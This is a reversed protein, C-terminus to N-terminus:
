TKSGGDTIEFVPLVVEDSWSQFRAQVLAGIAVSAPDCDVLQSMLRPGEELDVLVVVYPADYAESIAHRVISFSAIRGAGSARQWILDRSDCAVCAIRPYFQVHGCTECSQLLLEGRRCGAFWPESIATVAPQTKEM